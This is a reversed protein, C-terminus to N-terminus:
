QFVLKASLCHGRASLRVWYIGQSLSGRDVYIHHMGAPMSGCTLTRIQAGKADILTAAIEVPEALTYSATARRTALSPVVALGRPGEFGQGREEAVAVLPGFKVRLAPDGLLTWLVAPGYYNDDTPYWTIVSCKAAFV